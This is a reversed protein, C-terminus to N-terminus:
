MNEIDSLRKQHLIVNFFEAWELWEKTDGSFETLKLEPLGGPDGSLQYILQPTAQSVTTQRQSEM